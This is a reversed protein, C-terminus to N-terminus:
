SHHAPTRPLACPGASTSAVAPGAVLGTAALAVLSTLAAAASRLRAREVGGAVGVPTGEPSHQGEM